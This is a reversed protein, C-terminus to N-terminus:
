VCLRLSFTLLAADTPHSQAVMFPMLFVKRLPGLFGLGVQEVHLPFHELAATQLGTEQIKWKACEHVQASDKAGHFLAKIQPVPSFVM